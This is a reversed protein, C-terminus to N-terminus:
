ASEADDSLQDIARQVYIGCMDLGESDALRLADELKVRIVDITEAKSSDTM